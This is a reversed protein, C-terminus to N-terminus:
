TLLSIIYQRIPDNDELVEDLHLPRCSHICKMRLNAATEMRLLKSECSICLIHVQLEKYRYTNIYQQTSYM